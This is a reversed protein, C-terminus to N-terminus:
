GVAIARKERASTVAAEVLRIGRLGDAFTPFADTEGRMGAWAAAVINRFADIYGEAHGAPLATLDAEEAAMLSPARQRILTGDVSRERYTNPEEQNWDFGKLAGDVSLVITNPHGVSVCSITASGGGGGSLRVLLDVQDEVDVMVRVSGDEAMHGPPRPGQGEGGRWIRERQHISLQAAIEVIREGTVHEVLDLWHVGVDMLAYGPGVSGPTFHWMYKAPDFGDESLYCGSVRRLAGFVGERVKRRLAAVLPYGRYNYAVAGIRGARVAAEIMREAAALSTAMPKECLVHAGAAFGALAHAEHLHNPTCVHLVDPRQEDLMAALDDYAPVPALAAAAARSRGCVGVLEGGLDRIIRRHVRAIGGTGVIAIRM